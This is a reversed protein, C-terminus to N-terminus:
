RDSSTLLGMKGDSGQGGTGFIGDMPRDGHNFALVRM